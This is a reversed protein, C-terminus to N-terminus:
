FQFGLHFMYFGVGLMLAALIGNLAKSLTAYKNNQSLKQVLGISTGAMVALIGHGISYMLFLLIGFSLSGKGAVVAILAILVPTSCPSSFIGGLIGALFAGIFGKKTNKSLLHSSPILQYLGLMQLVMLMMLTGLGFFWWSATTGILEGALSAMIGFATFTLASGLAFVLSLLFARQTSPTHLTASTQAGEASTATTGGVYGVILPVSSLSCPTFSTLVGALFAIFPALWTTNLLLQSLAHLSADM